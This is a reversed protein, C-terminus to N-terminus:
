MNSFGLGFSNAWHGKKAEMVKMYPDKSSKILWEVLIKVNVKNLMVTTVDFLVKMGAYFLKKGFLQAHRYIM